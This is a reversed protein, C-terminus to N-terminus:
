GFVLIMQSYKCFNIFYRTILTCYGKSFIVEFCSVVRNVMDVLYNSKRSQDQGRTNSERFEFSSFSIKPDVSPRNFYDRERAGERTPTPYFTLRRLLIRAPPRLELSSNLSSGTSRIILLSNLEFLFFTLVLVSHLTPLLSARVVRVNKRM